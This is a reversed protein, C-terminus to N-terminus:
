GNTEEEFARRLALITRAPCDEKGPPLGGIILMLDDATLSLAQAITRGRLVEVTLSACAVAAPCGYTEYSAERITAGEVRFWLTVYPGGGPDGAVGRHTAGELPGGNRPNAIHDLALPSFAM